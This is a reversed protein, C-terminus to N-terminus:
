SPYEGQEDERSYDRYKVVEDIFFLSFCKIRKKFLKREKEFHSLITERIQIRRLDNESVDGVAEGFPFWNFAYKM